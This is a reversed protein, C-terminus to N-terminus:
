NVNRVIHKVGSKKTVVTDLRDTKRIAAGVTDRYILEAAVAERGSVIVAERSTKRVRVTLRTTQHIPPSSEFTLYFWSRSM